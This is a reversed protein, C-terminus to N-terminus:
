IVGELVRVLSKRTLQEAYESQFRACGAVPTLPKPTLTYPEPPLVIMSVHQFSFPRFPHLRDTPLCGSKADQDFETEEVVAHSGDM